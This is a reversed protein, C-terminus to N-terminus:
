PNPIWTELAVRGWPAYETEHSERTTGHEDIVRLTEAEMGAELSVYLPGVVRRRVGLVRTTVYGDMWAADVGDTFPYERSVWRIGGYWGWDNGPADWGGFVRSPLEVDFLWGSARKLKMGGDVLWRHFGPYQRYRALLRVQAVDSPSFKINFPMDEAATDAGIIYETMPIADHGFRLHGYRGAVLFFRPAGEKAHPLFVVDLGAVNPNRENNPLNLDAADSGSYTREESFFDDKLVFMGGLVQAPIPVLLEMETRKRAVKLDPEEGKDPLIQAPGAEQVDVYPGQVM